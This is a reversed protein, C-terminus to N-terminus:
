GKIIALPRTAVVPELLQSQQLLSILKDIDKFAKPSQECINENGLKYLKIGKENFGSLIEEKSFIKKAEQKSFKRGAGHNISCLTNKLGEKPSCLFSPGGPFSPIPFLSNKDSPDIRSAGNRHVWYNKGDCNDYDIREHPSDAILKITVNQSLSKELCDYIYQTIFSRNVYSYNFAARLAMLYRAAEQTDAGIGIFGEKFFLQKRLSLRNFNFDNLHYLLKRFNQRLEKDWRHNQLRLVYYNDLRKAFVGAGSHFMFLLGGKKLGKASAKEEDFIKDIVQLELFHNGGGLTGLRYLGGRFADKPISQLFARQDFSQSHDSSSRLRTNKFDIGKEFFFKEQAYLQGKLLIDIYENKGAIAKGKINDRLTFRINKFLDDITNESVGEKNLSTNIVRVACGIEQGIAFPYITNYSAIVLGTPIPNDPKSHVDPLVVIQALDELRELINKIKSESIPDLSIDENLFFKLRTDTINM